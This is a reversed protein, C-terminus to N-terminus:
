IPNEFLGFAKKCNEAIHFKELLKKDENNKDFNPKRMVSHRLETKKKLVPM